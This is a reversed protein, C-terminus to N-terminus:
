QAAGKIKTLQVVTMADPPTPTGSPGVATPHVHANFVNNIYDTLVQLISEGVGKIDIGSAADIIITGDPNLMITGKNVMGSSLTIIGTPDIAIVASPLPAGLTLTIEMPTGPTHSINFKRPLTAHLMEPIKRSGGDSLDMLTNVNIGDPGSDITHKYRNGFDDARGRMAFSYHKYGLDDTTYSTKIAGDSMTSLLESFVMSLKDNGDYEIKPTRTITGDPERTFAYVGIYGNDDVIFARAEGARLMQGAEMYIHRSGADKDHIYYGLIFHQGNISLVLAYEGLRPYTVNDPNEQIFRCKTYVESTDVSTATYTGDEEYSRILVRDVYYIKM